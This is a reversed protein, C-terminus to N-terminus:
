PIPVPPDFDLRGPLQAQVLRCPDHLPHGELTLVATVECKGLAAAKVAANRIVLKVGEFEASITYGLNMAPAEFPGLGIVLQPEAEVEVSNACMVFEEDQNEPHEDTNHYASLAGYTAWATAFCRGVDFSLKERIANLAAEGAGSWAVRGAVRQEDMHARIRDGLDEISSPLLDSVEISMNGAM